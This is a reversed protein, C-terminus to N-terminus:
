PYERRRAALAAAAAAHSSRRRFPRAATSGKARHSRSASRSVCRAIGRGGGPNSSAIHCRMDPTSPYPTAPAAPAAAPPPAAAAPPAATLAVTASVLVRSASPMTSDTASPAPPYAARRLGPADLGSTAVTWCRSVVTALRTRGVVSGACSAGALPG